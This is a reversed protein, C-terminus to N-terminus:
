KKLLDFHLILPSPYQFDPEIGHEKLENYFSLEGSKGIDLKEFSHFEISYGLTLFFKELEYFIGTQIMLSKIYNYPPAVYKTKSEKRYKIWTQDGHFSLVANKIFDDCQLYEFTTFSVIKGNSLKDAKEVLIKLIPKLKEFSNFHHYSPDYKIGAKGSENWKTYFLNIKKNGYRYELTYQETNGGDFTKVVNIQDAFSYTSLCLFIFVIITSIIKM